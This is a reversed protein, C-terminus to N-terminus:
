KLVKYCMNVAMMEQVRNYHNTSTKADVFSITTENTLHVAGAVSHVIHFCSGHRM